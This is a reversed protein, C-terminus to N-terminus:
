PGSLPPLLTPTSSGHVTRVQQHLRPHAARAPLAAQPHVAGLATGRQLLGVCRRVVPHAARLLLAPAPEMPQQPLQSADYVYYIALYCLSVNRAHLHVACTCAFMGCRGYFTLQETLDFNFGLVGM